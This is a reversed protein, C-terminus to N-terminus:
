LDLAFKELAEVDGTLLFELVPQALVPNLEVSQV